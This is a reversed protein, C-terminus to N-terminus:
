KAGMLVTVASTAVPSLIAVSARFNHVAGSQLQLLEELSKRNARWRSLHGWDLDPTNVPYISDVLDGGAVAFLTYTPIYVLALLGTFYAGQLLVYEPPVRRWAAPRSFLRGCHARPWRPWAGMVGLLTIFRQLHSRLDLLVEIREPCHASTSRVAAGRDRDRSRCARGLDRCRSSRWIMAALNVLAM